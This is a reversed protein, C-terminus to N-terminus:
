WISRYKPTPPLSILDPSQAALSNVCANPILHNGFAFLQLQKRRHDHRVIQDDSCLALNFLNLMSAFQLQQFM